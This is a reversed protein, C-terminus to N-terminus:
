YVLLMGMGMEIVIVIVIVMQVILATFYHNRNIHINTIMNMSMVCHSYRCQGDEWDDVMSLEMLLVMAVVMSLICHDNTSRGDKRDEMM